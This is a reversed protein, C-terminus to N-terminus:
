EAGNLVLRQMSESLHLRRLIKILLRRGTLKTRRGRHEDSNVEYDM